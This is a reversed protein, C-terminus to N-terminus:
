KWHKDALSHPKLPIGVSSYSHVRTYAQRNMYRLRIEFIQIVNNINPYEPFGVPNWETASFTM